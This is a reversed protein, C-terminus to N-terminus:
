GGGSYKEQAASVQFLDHYTILLNHHFETIVNKAAMDEAFCGWASKSSLLYIFFSVIFNLSDGANPSSINVIYTRPVATTYFLTWFGWRISTDNKNQKIGARSVTQGNFRGTYRSGIQALYIVTRSVFSARSHSRRQRKASPSLSSGEPQEQRM